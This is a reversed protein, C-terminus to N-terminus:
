PPEEADSLLKLGKGPLPLMLDLFPKANFASQFSCIHLPFAVVNLIVIHLPIASHGHLLFSVFTFGLHTPQLCDM